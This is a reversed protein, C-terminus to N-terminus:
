LRNILVVTLCLGLAASQVALMRITALKEAWRATLAFLAILPIQLTLCLQFLHAATGEDKLNREWGTTLVTTLLALALGSLVLPAVASVRNIQAKTM